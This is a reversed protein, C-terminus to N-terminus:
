GSNPVAPARRRGLGRDDAQGSQDSLVFEPTVADQDVLAVHGAKRDRQTQDKDTRETILNHGAKRGYASFEPATLGATPRLHRRVMPQQVAEGRLNRGVSRQTNRGVEVRVQIVPLPDALERDQRPCACHASTSTPPVM